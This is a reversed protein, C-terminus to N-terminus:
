RVTVFDNHNILAHILGFRARLGPDPRGAARASEALRALADRAIAREAETPEVALVALVDNGPM